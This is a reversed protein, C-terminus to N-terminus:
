AALETLERWRDAGKGGREITFGALVTDEAQRVWKRRIKISLSDVHLIGQTGVQDVPGHISVSLGSQSIQELTGAVIRDGFVLRCDHRYPRRLTHRKSTRSKLYVKQFARLMSWLSRFIGPEIEPQNWVASDFFTMAILAETEKEKLNVFKLGVEQITPSLQNQRCIDADFTVHEGKRVNVLCRLRTRDNPVAERLLIRAGTENLDVIVGRLRQDGALLECARRQKIRLFTRWEPLESAALIAVGLLILNIGGWFLSVGLGPVPVHEIWQRIGTVLGMILLGMMMLHPLVFTFRSLGRKEQEVGKPTIIFPRHARPRLATKVTAWSLAVCDATEYIDSLFANRTGRSVTRLMVLTAIYYSGFFNLISFVDATVPVIGFLLAFLPAILCVLRPVGHCFYFISAFYGIRQSLTLGRMTFPNTRFLLQIHGTAWRVRQKIAREFTEPMLGVALIKNLYCSRYGQAHIAMSTHIDETVTETLFGGIEKLVRRRLLGCSGAFFASNHRDRGAQLVRYFLAQENKLVKESRLNRQFIDPNYFHHPTQVLAVQEDQFFGVTEQLFDNAPVHDVDFIAIIEGNTEELAHNINGAKAHRRDTRRIYSCRLSTALRQIDDRQGDDLVYVRYRDKPYTQNVCGILTRRLIDLPEQVVTVFIDVTPFAKLPVSKRESTSWAHYVFFGIQIFAYIEAAYVTWSVFLSLWDTNNLTYLGRWALYRAYLLVTLILIIQRGQKRWSLLSIVVLTVVSVSIAISPDYLQDISSM